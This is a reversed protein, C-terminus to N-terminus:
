KLPKTFSCPLDILCKGCVDTKELGNYKRDNSLCMEYCLHRDYSDLQLAQNVCKLVCIKCVGKAKYLCYEGEKRETPAIHLNTIISGIRGCCGKETILMNNLGFKGLGAIFGIHRHSWDSLLSDQDFNHTAPISSTKYGSKVIIKNIYNNLDSILQNTDIYAEAWEKSASQGVANTRALEKRFPIFYVIVTAADDMLDEPLAHSVSVVEKLQLFMKDDAKAYAVLPERWKIKTRNRLPYKKVFEKILIDLVNNCMYVVWIM